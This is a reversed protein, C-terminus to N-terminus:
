WPRSRMGMPPAAMSDVLSWAATATASQRQAPFRLATPMAAKHAALSRMATREVGRREALSRATAYQTM